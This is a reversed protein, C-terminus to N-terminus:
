PPGVEVLHPVLGEPGVDWYPQSQRPLPLDARRIIERLGNIEADKMRITGELLAIKADKDATMTAYDKRLQGLEGELEAVRRRTQRHEDRERDIDERLDGIVGAAADQAIRVLDTRQRREVAGRAAEAGRREARADFWLKGAAVLGSGGFLVPGFDRIFDVPAV